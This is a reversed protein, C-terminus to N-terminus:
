VKLMARFARSGYYSEAGNHYIFVRGYRWDGFIAGGLSRIESPTKVWSSTKRDFKGLQQLQYYEQEDLIEVGMELALSTASNKPKHEKRSNLAEEDYCLSRRGKPSEASCDCFTYENTSSDFTIVDPEGGTVEMEHLSWLKEPQNELKSRVKEWELGEHRNNNKQFRIKLTALLESQQEPSLRKNSM